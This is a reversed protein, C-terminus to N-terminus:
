TPLCIAAGDAISCTGGRARCQSQSEVEEVTCYSGPNYCCWPRCVTEAGEHVCAGAGDRCSTIAGPIPSQECSEGFFAGPEADFPPAADIERAAVNDGCAGALVAVVLM